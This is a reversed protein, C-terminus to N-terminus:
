RTRSSRAFKVAYLRADAAEIMQEVSTFSPAYSVIGESIEVRGALRERVRNVLARAGAKTGRPLIVVFEDGGYRVVLDSARVEERLSDAVARLMRDGALHGQQDNITKFDDLDIMVLTLDEGRRAAAWAHELVVEMRRRNALGTLPDTLSLRRVDELLRVRKLAAQAQDTLTRLLEWDDPTFIRDERRELVFLVGEEGVPVHALLTVGPTAFLPALASFPSGTDARADSEMLLGPRTFRPHGSLSVTRLDKRSLCSVVPRYRDAGDERLLLFVQYGDVMRLVHETLAR